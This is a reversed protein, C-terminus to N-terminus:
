IAQSFRSSNEKNKILRLDFQMCINRVLAIGKDTVKIRNGSMKLLGDYEMEKLNWLNQDMMRGWIELPITAKQTCILDLIVSKVMLDEGTLFHGKRISWNHDAMENQYQTIGKDNQAYGLYIDSISSAGLGILMKAPSTTYGMFNRHLSKNRKAECLPDEPKAFHDMGVEEFGADLLIMKGFEYLARKEQEKPLHSEFSKQAPFASPLHAYSYFAIRDPSLKLVEEFTNKLTELTQHPLGYILDYNISTYGLKRANVTAETVKEVPQIRHIAKQVTPDFDQIGYSVRDFGLKSLTELHASTTNNPHGEFSFEATPLVESGSIIPNLLLFLSEPSFFTPTGGGLHVGALKPKEEFLDLYKRWEQLVATIYAQEVSHNKTIRKTCGCYTCLSECFPLHIYLSIGETSGFTSFAKKVLEEWMKGTLNNEWLPVTPYSTYRPAPINYKQILEQSISM